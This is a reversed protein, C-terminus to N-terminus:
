SLLVISDTWPNYANPGDKTERECGRGRWKAKSISARRHSVPEWLAGASSFGDVLPGMRKALSGAKTAKTALSARTVAAGSRDWCNFELKSRSGACGM